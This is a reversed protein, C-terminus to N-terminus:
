PGRCRHLVPPFTQMNISLGRREWLIPFWHVSMIFLAGASSYTASSCLSYSLLEVAPFSFSFFHLLLMTFSHYLFVFFHRRPHSVVTQNKDAAWTQLFTISSPSLTPLAPVAFRRASAHHSIIPHISASLLRRLLCTPCHKREVEMNSCCRRLGPKDSPGVFVEGEREM